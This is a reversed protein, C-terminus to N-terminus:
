GEVVAVVVHAALTAVVVGVAFVVDVGAFVVIVAVAVGLVGVVVGVERWSVGWRAGCVACSAVVLVRCMQIWGGALCVKNQDGKPRHGM